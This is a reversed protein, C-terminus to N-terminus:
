VSVVVYEIAGKFGCTVTDLELAKNTALKMLPRFVSPAVAGYMGKEAVPMVGTKATGDEDQWSISGDGTDATGYWSLVWIQTNAGQAAIIPQNATNAAASIVAWTPGSVLTPVTGYGKLAELLNLLTAQTAAGSPLASSSVTVAGTNCATVKGSLTSLTSETALASTNLNTGANATVSGAIAGTNCATVKGNLAALTTQTAFDGSPLTAALDAIQASITRLQTIVSGTGGPSTTPSSTPGVIAAVLDDRVYTRYDSDSRLPQFDTNSSAPIDTAADLRRTMVKLM